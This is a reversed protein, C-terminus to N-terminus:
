RQRRTHGLLDERQPLGFCVREVVALETCCLHGFILAAYLALRKGAQQPALLKVEVFYLFPQSAIRGARRWGFTTLVAAVAVPHVEVVGVHQGHRVLPLIRPVGRPIQSEM